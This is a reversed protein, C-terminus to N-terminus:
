RPRRARRSPAAAAATAAAPRVPHWVDSLVDARLEYRWWRPLLRAEHYRAPLDSEHGRLGWWWRCCLVRFAHDPVAKIATAVLPKTACRRAAAPAAAPVAAPVGRWLQVLPRAPVRASLQRHGLLRNLCRRNWVANSPRVSANPRGVDMGGQQASFGRNCQLTAVSPDGGVRWVGNRIPPPDGCGRPPPPPPPQRGGMGGISVGGIGGRENFEM